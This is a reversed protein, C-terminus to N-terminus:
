RQAILWVIVLGAAFDGFRYAVGCLFSNQVSREPGAFWKRLHAVGTTLAKNLRPASPWRPPKANSQM